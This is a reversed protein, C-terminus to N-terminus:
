IGRVFVKSVLKIDTGDCTDGGAWRHVNRERARKGSLAIGSECFLECAVLRLRAGVHRRRHQKVLLHCLSEVCDCYQKLDDDVSQVKSVFIDAVRIRLEFTTGTAGTAARICDFFCDGVNNWSM